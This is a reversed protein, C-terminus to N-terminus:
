NGELAAVATELIASDPAFIVLTDKESLKLLISQDPPNIIRQAEDGASTEWQIGERAEIFDLFADFFEQADEETDWTVKSVLLNAEESSKWLVYTDGGWGEAATAALEPPM